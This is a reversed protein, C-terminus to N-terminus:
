GPFPKEMFLYVAEAGTLRGAECRAIKGKVLAISGQRAQHADFLGLEGSSQSGALTQLLNPLGFLELDGTLAEATKKAAPELKAAIREAQEGLAHRKFKEAIMELAARVEQTPTGSVAQMLCSLEHYGRKAVFGVMKSPALEGIAKM